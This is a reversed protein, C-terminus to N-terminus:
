TVVPHLPILGADTAVSRTRADVEGRVPREVFGAGGHRGEIAVEGPEVRDAM